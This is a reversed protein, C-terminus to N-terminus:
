TCDMVGQIFVTGTCFHGRISIVSVHFYESVRFSSRGRIPFTLFHFLKNFRTFQTAHQLFTDKLIKTTTKGFSPKTHLAGGIRRKSHCQSYLIIQSPQPNCDITQTMGFSPNAPGQMDIGRESYCHCVGSFVCKQPVCSM